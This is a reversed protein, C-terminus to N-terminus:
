FHFDQLAEAARRYLAAARDVDGADLERLAAEAEALREGPRYLDIDVTHRAAGGLRALLATAGKLVWREPERVFLRALLRDYAFQRQLDALQADQDRALTRLRDTVARRLATPDAYRRETM